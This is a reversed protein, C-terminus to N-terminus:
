KIMIGAPRAELEAKSRSEHQQQQGTSLDQRVTTGRQENTANGAEKQLQWKMSAIKHSHSDM